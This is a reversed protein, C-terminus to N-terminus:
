RAAPAAQQPTPRAPSSKAAALAPTRHLPIPVIKGPAKTQIPAAAPPAVKPATFPDPTRMAKAGSFGSSAVRAPMVIVKNPQVRTYIGWGGGAVVFVIAAAAASRIATSRMWAGTSRAAAPWNLVRGSGQESQQAAHLNAYIRNELGEPAPLNAVMRLTADVDTTVSRPAYSDPSNM